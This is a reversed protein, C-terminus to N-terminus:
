ATEKEAEKELRQAIKQIKEQLEGAHKIFATLDMDRYLDDSIQKMLKGEAQERKIMANTRKIFTEKNEVRVKLGTLCLDKLVREACQSIDTKLKKYGAAYKTKLEEEPVRERNTKLKRVLDYLMDYDDAQREM